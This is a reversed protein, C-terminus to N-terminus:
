NKNLSLKIFEFYLVQVIIDYNGRCDLMDAVDVIVKGTSNDVTELRFLKQCKEPQNTGLSTQGHLTFTMWKNPGNSDSDNGQILKVLTNQM